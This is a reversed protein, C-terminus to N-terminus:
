KTLTLINEELSPDSTAVIPIVDKQFDGTASKRIVELFRYHDIFIDVALNKKPLKGAKRRTVFLKM